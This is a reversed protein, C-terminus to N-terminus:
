RLRYSPVRCLILFFSSESDTCVFDYFGGVMVIAFPPRCEGGHTECDRWQAIEVLRVASRAANACIAKSPFKWGPGQGEVETAATNTSPKAAPATPLPSVSKPIASLFPKHLIIQAWYYTVYLITSQDFFPDPDNHNSGCHYARNPDWKVALVRDSPTLLGSGSRSSVIRHSLILGHM